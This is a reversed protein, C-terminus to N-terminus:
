QKIRSIAYASVTFFDTIRKVAKEEETRYMKGEKNKQM